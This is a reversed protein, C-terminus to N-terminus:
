YSKIGIQVNSDNSNEILSGIIDKLENPDDNYEKIDFYLNIFFHYDKDAIKTLLMIMKIVWM